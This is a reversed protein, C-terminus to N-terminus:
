ETAPTGLAIPHERVVMMRMTDFNMFHKADEIGIQAEPSAFAAEYADSSDYYHEAVADFPLGSEDRQDEPVTNFALTYRRLGPYTTVIPAHIELIHRKFEEVTVDPRRKIFFMFRLPQNPADAGIADKLAIRHEEVVMSRAGASDVVKPLHALAQQGQPSSLAAPFQEASEFWLEAIGEFPLHDSKVTGEPLPDSIALNQQYRQLNPLKAVLPVHVDFIERKFDDDSLGALRSYFTMIRPM